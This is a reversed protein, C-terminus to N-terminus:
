NAAKTKTCYCKCRHTLKSRRNSRKKRTGGTSVTGPLKPSSTNNSSLNERRPIFPRPIFPNTKYNYEEQRWRALAVLANRNPSPPKILTVPVLSEIHRNCLPCKKNIGTKQWDKICKEHFKHECPKLEVVTMGAATLPKTCISCDDELGPKLFKGMNLVNTEITAEIEALQKEYLEEVILTKYNSYLTIAQMDNGFVEPVTNNENIIRLIETNTVMFKDIMKILAVRIKGNQYITMSRAAYMSALLGIILPAFITGQNLLQKGFVMGFYKPTFLREYMSHQEAYNEKLQAYEPTQTLEYTFPIGDQNVGHQIPAWKMEEIKDGIERMSRIYKYSNNDIEIYSGLAHIATSIGATTVFTTILKTLFGKFIEPEEGPRKDLDDVLRDVERTLEKENGNLDIYSIGEFGKGVTTTILDGSSKFQLKGSLILRILILDNIAGAKEDDTSENNVLISLAKQLSTLGLAEEYKSVKKINNIEVTYGRKNLNKLTYNVNKPTLRSM